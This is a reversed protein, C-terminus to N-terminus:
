APRHRAATAQLPPQRHAPVALARLLAHSIALDARRDYGDYGPMPNGELVIFKGSDQVIFDFGVFSLSSLQMYTRCRRVLEAPPDFPTFRCHSSFRYDVEGPRKDILEAFAQDQVMHLRMDRGEIFEQFLVPSHALNELHALDDEKLLATITGQSSAGKYITRGPQALQRVWHADNSLLSQPVDFGCQALLLLQYLKSSNTLDAQPRNIVQCRASQMMEQLIRTRASWQEREAPRTTAIDVLRAYVGSIDDDGFDITVGGARITGAGRDFDWEWQGDECFAALDLFQCPLQMQQAIAAAHMLTRDRTLGAFVIM